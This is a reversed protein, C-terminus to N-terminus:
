VTEYKQPATIEYMLVISINYQNKTIILNPFFSLQKEPCNLIDCMVIYVDM